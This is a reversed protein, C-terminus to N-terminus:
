GSGYRVYSWGPCGCVPPHTHQSSASPLICSHTNYGKYISPLFVNLLASPFTTPPSFTPHIILKQQPCNESAEHKQKCIQWSGGECALFAHSTGTTEPFVERNMATRNTMIVWITCLARCDRESPGADWCKYFEAPCLDCRGVERHYGAWKHIETHATLRGSM